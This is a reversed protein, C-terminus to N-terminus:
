LGSILKGYSVLEIEMEAVIRLAEPSTLMDYVAQRDTAVDDYGPHGVARMEPSDLAPHEVYLYTKGAELRGLADIFNETREEPSSSSAMPMRVLELRQMTGTFPLGFEGAIRNAMEAIDPRVTWGMHGTIHTIMGPLYKLALSIQARMEAEMEAIDIRAAIETLSRGPASPNPSSFPYFYGYEDVLSPCTTLPRWKLGTWESTFAIHVGVDLGLNETLMAVAEPLWPAVVMLEASRVLGDTYSGIVGLNSAHSMGIDDARVLLRAPQSWLSAPSLLAIAVGLFLKTKM